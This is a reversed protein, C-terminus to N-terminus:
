EYDIANSIVHKEWNIDKIENLTANIIKGRKRQRPLRNEDTIDPSKWEADCEECLILFNISNSHGDLAEKVIVLEGQGCVPCEGINYRITHPRM